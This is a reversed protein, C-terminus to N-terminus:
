RQVMPGSCLGVIKIYVFLSVVRVCLSRRHPTERHILVTAFSCSIANDHFAAMTWPLSALRRSLAPSQRRVPM